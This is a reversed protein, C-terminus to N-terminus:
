HIKIGNKNPKHRVSKRNLCINVYWFILTHINNILLHPKIIFIKFKHTKNSVIKYPYHSNSSCWEGSQAYTTM